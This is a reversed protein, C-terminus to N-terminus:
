WLNDFSVIRKFKKFDGKEENFPTKYYKERMNPVDGLPECGYKHTFYKKNNNFANEIIPKLHPNNKITQSCLHYYTGSTTSVAKEGLMAIRAHYDGDEFYAVQFNEDFYGIKDICNKNIMFCSFDPHENDPENPDYEKELKLMEEISISQDNVGTVMVYKGTEIKKVLNDITNPALVIDNNIVFFLSCNDDIARQIGLNWCAALGSVIPNKYSIIDKRETLWDKTGDISGNDILIIEYDHSTKISDITQKTYELCNVSVCIIGIKM